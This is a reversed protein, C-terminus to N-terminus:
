VGKAHAWAIVHLQPLARVHAFDPRTAVQECLWRYRRAIKLLTEEHTEDPEVPDTGCSVYAPFEPYNEFVDAAWNLDYEDFVVVKIASRDPHEVQRMFGPLDNTTKAAMGSSPGKPSIVLSDVQNLWPKFRSGQTETAVLFGNAHLSDVLPELDLLAPNGGSLTVWGASQGLELLGAVIMTAPLRRANERVQAPDVAHMSDCWECRYDCGGFRVFHTSMGAYPGEGQITPGFVEIVPFTATREVTPSITM